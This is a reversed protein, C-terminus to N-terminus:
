DGTVLAERPGVSHRTRAKQNAIVPRSSCGVIPVLQVLVDTRYGTIRFAVNYYVTGVPYRGDLLFVGARRRVM